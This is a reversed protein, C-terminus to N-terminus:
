EVTLMVPQELLKPESGALLIMLAFRGATANAPVKFKIFNEKQELITTKLDVKGNTLYVDAVRSDDLCEGFVTAIEGAKVIVPEVRKM